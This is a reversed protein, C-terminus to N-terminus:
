LSDQTVANKLLSERIKQIIRVVDDHKMDFIEAIEDYTYNHCKLVLIAKEKGSEIHKFIKDDLPVKFEDVENTFNIEM